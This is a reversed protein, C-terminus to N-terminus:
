RIMARTKSLNRLCKLPGHWARLHFEVMTGRPLQQHGRDEGGL